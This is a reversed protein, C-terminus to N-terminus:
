PVHWIRAMPFGKPGSNHCNEGKIDASLNRINFINFCILDVFGPLYGMKKRILNGEFATLIMDPSGDKVQTIVM